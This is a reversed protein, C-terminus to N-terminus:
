KMSRGLLKDALAELDRARRRGRQTPSEIRYGPMTRKSAPCKTVTVSKREAPSTPPERKVVVVPPKLLELRKLEAALWPLRDIPPAARRARMYDCQYDRKEDGIFAM